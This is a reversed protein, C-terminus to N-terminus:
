NKPEAGFARDVFYEWFARRPAGMELRDNISSRINQALHAWGALSPAILTEIRRRIAQGLIPAAGDTSISIVAPSRNVISGFQFECYKPKDIVNVAVGADRAACYFAQAEGETDADCIAIQTHKFIDSAWPRQHWIYTGSVSPESMLSEFAPDLKEAYVHVEAGSAALLEAKWAAADSGGAVVTKKGELKYFVPLTALAAMRERSKTRQKSSQPLSRINM